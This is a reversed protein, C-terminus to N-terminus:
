SAMLVGRASPNREPGKAHTRPLRRFEGKRSKRLPQHKTSLERRPRQLARQSRGLRRGPVEQCRERSPTRSIIPTGTAPASGHWRPHRTPEGIGRPRCSAPWDRRTSRTEDCQVSRPMASPAGRRIAPKRRSCPRRSYSSSRWARGRPAGSSRRRTAGPYRRTGTRCRCNTRPDPCGPSTRM